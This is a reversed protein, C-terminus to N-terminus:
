LSKLNKKALLSINKFQANKNLFKILRESCNKKLNMGPSGPVMEPDPDQYFTRIRGYGSRNGSGSEWCQKNGIKSLIKSTISEIGEKDRYRARKRREFITIKKLICFVTPLDKMLSLNTRYKVDPGYETGFSIKKNFQVQWGPNCIRM